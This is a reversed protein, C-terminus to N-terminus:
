LVSKRVSQSLKSLESPKLAELILKRKTKTCGNLLYRELSELCGELDSFEHWSDECQGKWKVRFEVLSPKKSKSKILNHDIIGDVEWELENEITVPPPPDGPRPVFPKIQSYSVTPHIGMSSPIDLRVASRGVVEIVKLPGMFKPMLKHRRSPHRLGLNRVSFWVLDGVKYTQLSVGRADYHNKMRQKSIELCRRAWHFMVHAQIHTREGLQAPSLVSNGMFTTTQSVLPTGDVVHELLANFPNRPMCIRNMSFASCQTSENHMDNVAFEILPTFDDWDKQDASVYHRLAASIVENGREVLGNTQPHYATSLSLQIGSRKSLADWFEGNWRRDRDSILKIPMGYHPFVERMYLKAIGEATVANVTPVIRYMKSLHDRITCVANHGNESMPLDGILDIGVTRWCESPALTPTLPPRRLKRDVKNTQCKYCSKIYESIDSSLNPWWFQRKVLELTKHIGMHACWPVDHHWYLIDKRLQVDPPIYLKNEKWWLQGRQTLGLKDRSVRCLISPDSELGKQIRSLLQLVLSEYSSFSPDIEGSPSAGGSGVGHPITSPGAGEESSTAVATSTYDAQNAVKNAPQTPDPSDSGGYQEKGSLRDAPYDLGGSQTEDASSQSLYKSVSKTSVSKSVSRAIQSLPPVSDDISRPQVGSPGSALPDREEGWVPQGTRRSERAARARTHGGAAAFRVVTLLTPRTPFVNECCGVAGGALTRRPPRLQSVEPVSALVSASAAAQVSAGSAGPAVGTNCSVALPGDYAPGGDEGHWLSAVRARKRPRSSPDWVSPRRGADAAGRCQQQGDYVRFTVRRLKRPIPRGNASCGHYASARSRGSGMPSQDSAARVRTPPSYHRCAASSSPSRGAGSGTFAATSASSSKGSRFAVYQTQSVSASQSQFQSQSQSVLASVSKDSDKRLKSLLPWHDAPLDEEAEEPANLMRSLADAVVNEDGRVYLIEYQFRSLYELWRAQRRSPTKQTQLWTLPEHDSHLLVRTGDLYCRWKQFCYVVALLEQETTIYNREASSLKRAIFAIPCKRGEHEQMLVGGIAGISADMYVHFPKTFIPHHM